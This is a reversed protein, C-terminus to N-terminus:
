AADSSSCRASAIPAGLDVSSHAGGRLLRALVADTLEATRSWPFEAARQLGAESLRAHLARDRTVATLAEAFGLQDDADVLLGAEGVTEPLAAARAAVVPTGCAMAELCPLGFGEYRSPMALARAGAYLAPLDRDSIYGLRRLSTGPSRLYHRDSGAVVLEIGDQELARAAPELVELNKRASVTGVTLVYPRRLGHRTAVAAAESRQAPVFREDVGEPIVEIREPSIRLLDLLEARSFESVTIVLRARRAIVPLIARQYGVYSRSYAEPFRLAALDHIVPVTRDSVIPALNAPCYLLGYRTSRAPLVVQEWVHGARHALLPHPRIVGYRDPRLRPLRMSMQLAFREVGGIETRVSARGNIAVVPGPGPRGSRAV